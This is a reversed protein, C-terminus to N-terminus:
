QRTEQQASRLGLAYAANEAHLRTMENGNELTVLQETKGLICLAESVAIRVDGCPDELRSMLADSAPEAAKGLAVCGTAAWFRVASEEDDLRRIIEPLNRADRMSAMEATEIIRDAPFGDQHILDYITTGESRDIMEGEPLFGPDRMERVWRMKEERMRKLIDAHDPDGALNNVEHPDVRTDYLEESPKEQWFLSQTRNCRGSKYEQEWSRTNAAKWLYNLHQGYIRHPMYNRIYKYREDRVARMMDYREDMRNRFLYVYKRPQASGEGLFAEGQMYDPVDVGVLRLLSPALDVFSVLRDTRTAPKSPALHQYKKPFRIIMPVHTGTDYLMRKSRCLVGGNDAFYFVITDQALGERELKELIEGVQSDMKEVQDYYQAWDARIEPTDPHYPPLIVKQPDHRLESNRNHIKSEHSVNLNVVHFFPQGKKRHTYDGEDWHSKDDTQFNYDTKGPNTCYYGAQRLYHPYPKVFDSIPYRSRMHHTGLACAYMGTLITFRAPACVPANAFANEYLIGESAMKDLNPTTAFANGYCGLFTSSNDESTIWLINPMERKRFRFMSPAVLGVVGLLSHSLFDRRKIADCKM